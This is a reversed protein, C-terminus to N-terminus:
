NKQPIRGVRLEEDRKRIERGIGANENVRTGALCVSTATIEWHDNEKDVQARIAGLIELNAAM